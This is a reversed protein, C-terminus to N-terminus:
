GASPRDTRYGALFLRVHLRTAFTTAEGRLAGLFHHTFIPGIFLTVILDGCEANLAGAQQYYHFFVAMTDYIAHMSQRVFSQQVAPLRSIEPLLHITCAGAEAMMHAVEEALRLLDEELAGTPAPVRLRNAQSKEALATAILEDKSAFHRFLTVENVGAARAINRCTAGRYGCEVLQALVATMLRERTSDELAEKRMM